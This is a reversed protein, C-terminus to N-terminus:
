AVGDAVMWQATHIEQATGDTVLGITSNPTLVGVTRTGM